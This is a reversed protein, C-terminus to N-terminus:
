QGPQLVLGTGSETAALNGKDIFGDAVAVFNPDGVTQVQIYYRVGDDNNVNQVITFTANFDLSVPVSRDNYFGVTAGPAEAGNAPHIFLSDGLFDASGFNGPFPGDPATKQVFPYKGNVLGNDWQPFTDLVENGELDWDALHTMTTRDFSAEFYQWVATPSQPDPGPISDLAVDYKFTQAGLPILSAMFLLLILGARLEKEKM